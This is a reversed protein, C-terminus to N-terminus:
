KFVRYLHWVFHGQICSSVHIENGGIRHGTGHIVYYSRQVEANADAVEVWLMPTENQFDFMVCKFKGPIDVWCERFHLEYKYVVRM